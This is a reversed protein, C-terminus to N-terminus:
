LNQKLFTEFQQRQAMICYKKVFPKEIKSTSGNGRKFTKVNQFLSKFSKAPLAILM